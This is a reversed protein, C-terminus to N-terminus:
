RLVFAPKTNGLSQMWWEIRPSTLDRIWICCLFSISACNVLSSAPVVVGAVLPVCGVQGGWMIIGGNGDIGDSGTVMGLARALGLVLSYRIQVAMSRNKM